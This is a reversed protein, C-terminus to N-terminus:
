VYSVIYTYLCLHIIFTCWHKGNPGIKNTSLTIIFQNNQANSVYHEMRVCKGCTVINM